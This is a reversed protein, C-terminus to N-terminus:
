GIRAAYLVHPILTDAEEIDINPLQMAGNGSVMVCPNKDITGMGTGSLIM